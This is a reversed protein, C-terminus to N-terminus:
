SRMVGLCNIIYRPRTHRRIMTGTYSLSPSRDRIEIEYLRAHDLEHGLFVSLSLSLALSFSLSLLIVLSAWPDDCDRTVPTSHISSIRRKWKTRAAKERPRMQILWSKPQRKHIIRVFVCVSPISEAIDRAFIRRILWCYDFSVHWERNLSSIKKIYKDSTMSALESLSVSSLLYNIIIPRYFKPHKDLRNGRHQWLSVRDNRWRFFVELSTFSKVVSHLQPHHLILPFFRSLALSLSLPLSSHFGRVFNWPSMRESFIGHVEWTPYGSVRSGPTVIGIELQGHNATHALAFRTVVNSRLINSHHPIYDNRVYSLM